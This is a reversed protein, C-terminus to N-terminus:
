TGLQARSASGSYAMEFEKANPPRLATRAHRRISGTAVTATAQSSVGGVTIIVPVNGTVGAPVQINVQVM